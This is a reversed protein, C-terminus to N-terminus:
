LKTIEQNVKDWYDKWKKLEEANPIYWDTEKQEHVCILACQKANEKLEYIYYEKSVSDTLPRDAYRVFMDVLEKAKEKPKM